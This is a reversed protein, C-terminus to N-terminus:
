LERLAEVPDMRAARLAPALFSIAVLALGSGAVIVAEEWRLEMGFPLNRSLWGGALPAAAVGAAAGAGGLILGELLIQRAIGGRTAGHARRVGMEVVRGQLSLLSITMVMAGALVVFVIWVVNSFADGIDMMGLISDIWPKRPWVLLSAREEGLAGRIRSVAEWPEMGAAHRVLLLQVEDRGGDALLPIYICRGELIRFILPRAASLFDLGQLKERIRLPDELVGRVRFEAKRGAWEVPVTRGTPDEAGFLAAALGADLVCGDRDGEAFYGGASLTSRTIAPWAPDTELLVTSIQPEGEGPGGKGVVALSVRAAAADGGAAEALLRRDAMSIRPREGRFIADPDPNRHVHILDQGLRGLSERMERRASRILSVATLSAGFIAALTLAMLASEFPHARIGQLAFTVTAPARRM